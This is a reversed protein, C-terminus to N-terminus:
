MSDRPHGSAPPWEDDSATSFIYGVNSCDAEGVTFEKPQASQSSNQCLFGSQSGYSKHAYWRKTCTSECLGRETMSFPLRTPRAPVSQRTCRLCLARALGSGILIQKPIKSKFPHLLEPMKYQEPCKFFELFIYAPELRATNQVITLDLELTELKTVMLQHEQNSHISLAPRTKVYTKVASQVLYQWEALTMVRTNPSAQQLSSYTDQVTRTFPVAPKTFKV